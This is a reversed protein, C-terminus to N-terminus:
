GFECSAPELHHRILIALFRAEPKWLLLQRLDMREIVVTVKVFEAARNSSREEANEAVIASWYGREM